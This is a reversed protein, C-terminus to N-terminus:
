APLEAVSVLQQLQTDWLINRVAGPVQGLRLRTVAAFMNQEHRHCAALRYNPIGACLHHVHHYGIDATVWNLWGPLVLFSTGEIVAADRDWGATPSAYSRAFNHQVAFLVVAAGCALSMALLYCAFFLSPGLAWSMMGWLALLALNNILMHVYDGMSACYPQGYSRLKADLAERTPPCGAGLVHWLLSFTARLWNLRPYVVFYLLGALPALWISRLLRFRRQGGRTLGRYEVVPIVALPGRYREWDGNTAHHHDHNRSWVPQAIGSLVGLVAGCYRNLRRSRFLSYHGCDHMLVFARILLLGLALAPIASLWPSIRAGAAIAWWLVAIPLLTNAVQMAGMADDPGSHCNRLSRRCAKM